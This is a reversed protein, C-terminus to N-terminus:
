RMEQHTEQRIHRRQRWPNQANLFKISGFLWSTLRRWPVLNRPSWDFPEVKKLIAAAAM